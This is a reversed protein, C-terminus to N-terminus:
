RGDPRPPELVIIQTLKDVPYSTENATVAVAYGMKPYLKLMARFGGGGGEHAAYPEGDKEGLQWALGFPAPTGDNLKYPKLMAAVSGPSLVQGEAGRGQQMTMQAFRLLCDAPGSLGGHPIGDVTFPRLESYGNITGAFYREGVMGRIVMGMFTWKKMYATARDSTVAFGARSCGLPTLVNRAVYSEYRTGSVHEVIKGLLVYGLNSYATKAGPVFDLEPKRGLRKDIMEDITAGPEDAPHIWTVIKLTPNPVGAAHSLLDRVTADHGERRLVIGPLYDAAPADLDIRGQEALQLVATATFLKTISFWAFPTQPTAKRGTRLDAFGATRFLMNGSKDVAGFVIGPTEATAADLTQQLAAPTLKELHTPPAKQTCGTTIASLAVLILGRRM